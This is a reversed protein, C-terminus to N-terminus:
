FRLSEMPRIISGLIQPVSDDSMQLHKLKGLLTNLSFFKGIAKGTEDGYSTNLRKVSTPFGSFEPYLLIFFVYNLPYAASSFM